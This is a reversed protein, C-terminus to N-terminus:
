GKAPSECLTGTFKYSSGVKTAAVQEFGPVKDDVVVQLSKITSGDNLEIFMLDTGGARVNKAWGGVTLIKHMFPTPDEFLKSIRVRGGGGQTPNGTKIIPVEEKETVFEGKDFYEPRQAKAEEEQGAPKQEAPAEGAHM